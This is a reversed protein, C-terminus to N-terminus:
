FFIGAGFPYITDLPSIIGTHGPSLGSHEQLNLSGSKLVSLGHLHYPQWDLASAVKSGLFYKHYKNRNSAADVSLALTCSSPNHWHFIGTWRVPWKVGWSINTTSTETLPQTLVWPGLAAPLIIDFFFQLSMMPFRPQLRGAQLATGWGVAM